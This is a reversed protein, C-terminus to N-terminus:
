QDSVPIVTEIGTSQQRIIINRTSGTWSVQLELAQAISRVPIFLKGTIFHPAVGLILPKNDISVTSNGPKLIITHGSLTLTVVNTKPQYEVQGDFPEILKRVHVFTRGEILLASVVQPARAPSDIDYPSIPKDLTTRMFKENLVKGGFTFRVANVEPFQTLLLVMGALRGVETRPFNAPLEIHLVGSSDALPTKPYEPTLLVMGKPLLPEFARRGNTLSQKHECLTRLAEKLTANYPLIRSDAWDIGVERTNPNYLYLYATSIIPQEVTGEGVWTVEKGNAYLRVKRIGPVWFWSSFRTWFLISQSSSLSADAYDRYNVSLTDGAVTAQPDRYHTNQGGATFEMEPRAALADAYQQPTFDNTTTTFTVTELLKVNREVDYQMLLLTHPFENATTQAQALNGCGILAILLAMMHTTLNHFGHHSMINEEKELNADNAQNYDLGYRVRM